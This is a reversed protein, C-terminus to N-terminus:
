LTCTTICPQSVQDRFIVSSCLSLTNSFLTSLPFTLRLTVLTASELPRESAPIALEFGAPFMSTHTKHIIHTACIEAVPRDRTWLLGVSHTHTVTMLQLLLWRCRCHTRLLSWVLSVHSYRTAPPFYMILVLVTNRTLYQKPSWML